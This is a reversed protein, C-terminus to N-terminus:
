LEKLSRRARSAAARSSRKRLPAATEARGASHPPVNESEAADLAAKSASRPVRQASDRRASSRRTSASTRRKPTVATPTGPASSGRLGPGRRLTGRNAAGATSAVALLDRTKEALRPLVSPASPLLSYFAAPLAWKGSFAMAQDDRRIAGRVMGHAFAALVKSGLALQGRETADEVTLQQLATLVALLFPTGGAAEGASETLPLIATRLVAVQPGYMNGLEAASTCAFCAEESPMDPGHALCHILPFVSYEPLLWAALRMSTREGDAGGPIVACARAHTRRLAAISDEMAERASVAHARVPEGTAMMLPVLLACHGRGTRMSKALTRVAGCRVSADADWACAHCLAHTVAPVALMANSVHLHNLLTAGGPMGALKGLARASALRLACADPSSAAGDPAAWVVGEKRLIGVLTKVLQSVPYAAAKGHLARLGGVRWAGRVANVAVQLAGIRAATSLAVGSFSPTAGFCPWQPCDSAIAGVDRGATHTTSPTAHSPSARKRGSQAEELSPSAPPEMNSRLIGTMAASFAEAGFSTLFTEPAHLALSALGHMSAIARVWVQGEANGDTAAKSRRRPKKAATTSGASSQAAAIDELTSLTENGVDDARLTHMVAQLVSGSGGTMCVIARAAAKSTRASHSPGGLAAALLGEQHSRLFAPPVGSGARSLVRCAFIAAVTHGEAAVQILRALTAQMFTGGQADGSHPLLLGPQAEAICALLACAAAPGDGGEWEVAGEDRMHRDATCVMDVLHPLMDHNALHMGALRWLSKAVKAQPSGKGLRSLLDAKADALAGADTSPDAIQLIRARVRKDAHGLVSSVATALAARSGVLHPLVTDVAAALREPHKAASVGASLATQLATRERLLDLFQTRREPSLSAFLQTLARARVRPHEGQPVMLADLVQVLRLHLDKDRRGVKAHCRLLSNPIWHLKFLVSDAMSPAAEDTVGLAVDDDSDADGGVLAAHDASAATQLSRMSALDAAQAAESESPEDAAALGEEGTTWLYKLRGSYVQALGTVATVAVASDRDMAREGLERLLEVPVAEVQEVATATVTAVAAARVPPDPSCLAAELAHAWLPITAPHALMVAKAATVTAERVASATDVHRSIFADLVARHVKWHETHPSAFLDGLLVAAELRHTPDEGRVEEGLLAMIRNLMAPSVQNAEFIIDYLQGRSSLESGRATPAGQLVSMALQYIADEMRDTLRGLVNIALAYARPQSARSAATLRQLLCDLVPVTIEDSEEVCCAIISALTEELKASHAPQLAEFMANFLSVLPTDDVVGGREEAAEAVADVLLVASKVTALSELFQFCLDYRASEPDTNTALTGVQM